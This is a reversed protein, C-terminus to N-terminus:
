LLEYIFMKLIPDQYEPVEQLGLRHIRAGSPYSKPHPGILKNCTTQKIGKETGALM